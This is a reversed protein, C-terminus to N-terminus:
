PAAAPEPHAKHDSHVQSPDWCYESTSLASLVTGPLALGISQPRGPVDIVSGEGVRRRCCRPCRTESLTTLSGEVEPGPVFSVYGDCPYIDPASGYLLCGLTAAQHASKVSVTSFTEEPQRVFNKLGGSADDRARCRSPGCRNACFRDCVKTGARCRSAAASVVLFQGQRSKRLREVKSKKLLISGFRVYSPARWDVGSRSM